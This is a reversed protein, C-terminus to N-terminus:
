RISNSLQKYDNIEGQGSYYANDNDEHDRHVANPFYVGDLM